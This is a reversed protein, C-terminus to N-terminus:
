YPTAMSITWELSRSVKNVGRAIVLQGQHVLGAVPITVDILSETDRKSPTINRNRNSKAGDINGYKAELVVLGHNEM